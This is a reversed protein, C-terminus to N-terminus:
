SEKCEEDDVNEESIVREWKRLALDEYYRKFNLAVNSACEVYSSDMDVAFLDDHQDSLSQELPNGPQM